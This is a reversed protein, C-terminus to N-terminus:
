FNCNIKACMKGATVIKRQFFAFGRFIESFERSKGMKEPYFLIMTNVFAAATYKTESIRRYTRAPVSLQREV